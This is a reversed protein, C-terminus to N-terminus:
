KLDSTFSYFITDSKRTILPGTFLFLQSKRSKAVFIDKFWHTPFNLCSVQCESQNMRSEADITISWHCRLHRRILARSVAALQSPMRIPENSTDADASIPWYWWKTQNWSKYVEILPGTLSWCRDHKAKEKIKGKSDWSCSYKTVIEAWSYGFCKPAWQSM